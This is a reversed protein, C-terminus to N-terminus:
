PPSPPRRRSSTIPRAPTTMYIVHERAVFTLRHQGFEKMLDAHTGPRHLQDRHARHPQADREPNSGLGDVLVFATVGLSPCDKNAQSRPRNPSDALRDGPVFSQRPLCAHWSSRTCSM